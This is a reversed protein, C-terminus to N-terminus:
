HMRAISVLHQAVADLSDFLSRQVDVLAEAVAPKDEM